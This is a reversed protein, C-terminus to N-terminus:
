TRATHTNKSAENTAGQFLLLDAAVTHKRINPKPLRFHRWKKTGLILSRRLFWLCNSNETTKTACTGCDFLGQLGNKREAAVLYGCL